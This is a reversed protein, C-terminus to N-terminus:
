IPFLHFFIPLVTEVPLLVRFFENVQEDVTHVVNAQADLIATSNDFKKVTDNTSFSVSAKSSKSKSGKLSNSGKPRGRGSPTLSMSATNSISSHYDSRSGTSADIYDNQVPSGFNSTQESIPFSYLFRMSIFM